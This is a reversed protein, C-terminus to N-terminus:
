QHPLPWVVLRYTVLAIGGFSDYDMERAAELTMATGFDMSHVQQHGTCPDTHLMVNAPKADLWVYGAKHIRLVSSALEHLLM